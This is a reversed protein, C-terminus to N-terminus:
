RHSDIIKFIKENSGRYTLNNLVNLFEKRKKVVLDIGRLIKRGNIRERPGAYYSWGRSHYYRCRGRQHSQTAILVAPVKAAVLESSVLGGASVALDAWAYDSVLDKPYLKMRCSAFNRGILEKLKAYNKYGAGIIVRIEADKYHSYLAEIILATLDSEDIGGACVLLRLKRNKIRRKIKTLPLLRDALIFNEYGLLFSGEQRLYKRYIGSKKHVCWNIVLDFGGTIVGDFNVCAMVKAPRGLGKYESFPRRTVEMFLCDIRHKLCAERLLGIERGVTFDDPILILNRPKDQRLIRLAPSSKRVAFFCKWANRKFIGSLYIVSKLDGTGISDQADARFLINPM